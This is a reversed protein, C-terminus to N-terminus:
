FFVWRAVWLVGLYVTGALASFVLTLPWLNSGEGLSYLCIPLSLVILAVPAWAAILWRGRWSRLAAYQLVFYGPVGAMIFLMVLAAM